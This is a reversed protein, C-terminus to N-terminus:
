RVLRHLVNPCKLSPFSQFASGSGIVVRSWTVTTRAEHIGFGRRRCFMYEPRMVDGQKGDENECEFGKM